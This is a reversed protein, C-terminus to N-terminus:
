RNFRLYNGYGTNWVYTEELVEIGKQICDEDVHILNGDLEDGLNLQRRIEKLVGGYAILRKRDLAEDLIKIADLSMDLDDCDLYDTDKVTYKACESVSRVTDGYVRRIDVIPNYDLDMCSRWLSVWKDQKIYGEKETTSFYSKNVVLIVHYHPHYTNNRKNHTVELGRYWGKVVRFEKRRYLLGYARQMKLILENLEEPQCNKVTLTLFLFRYERKNRKLQEMIRSMNSYIKLSRRWACLPCLRIKCFMANKLQKSGNELVSFTLLRGCKELRLARSSYRDKKETNQKALSFYMMSLFETRKKKEKWQRERGSVSYDHLVVDQYAEEETTYNM